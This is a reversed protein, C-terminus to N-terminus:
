RSEALGLQLSLLAGQAQPPKTGAQETLEQQEWLIPRHHLPTPMAKKIM